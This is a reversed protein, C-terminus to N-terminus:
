KTQGYKNIIYKFPHIVFPILLSQSLITHSSLLYNFTNVVIIKVGLGNISKWKQVQQLVFNGDDSWFGFLSYSIQQCKHKWVM